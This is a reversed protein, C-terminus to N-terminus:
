ASATLIRCEEGFPGLYELNALHAWAFPLLRHLCCVAERYHQGCDGCEILITVVELDMLFIAIDGTPVHEASLGAVPAHPRQVDEIVLAVSCSLVLKLFQAFEVGLAKMKADALGRGSSRASRREPFVGSFRRSDNAARVTATEVLSTTLAPRSFFRSYKISQLVAFASAIRSAFLFHSSRAVLSRVNLLVGIAQKM